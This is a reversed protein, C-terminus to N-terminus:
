AVGHLEGVEDVGLLAEAGAAQAISVHLPVEPGAGWFGCVLDGVEHAVAACWFGAAVLVSEAGVGVLPDVFVTLWHPHLVVKLGALAPFGEGVCFGLFHGALVGVVLAFVEVVGDLAAVEGDPVDFNLDHWEVLGFGVAPVGEVQGLGPGLLVVRKDVDAVEHEVAVWLVEAGLDLLQGEVWGVEDWANSEGWVAHEHGTGKSICICLAVANARVVLLQGDVLWHYRHVGVLVFAGHGVVEVWRVRRHVCWVAKALTCAVEIVALGRGGAYGVTLCLIEVDVWIWM